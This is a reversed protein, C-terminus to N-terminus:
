IILRTCGEEKRLRLCVWMVFRYVRGGFLAM